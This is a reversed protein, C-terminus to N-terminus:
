LRLLLILTDVVSVAVMALGECGSGAWADAALVKCSASVIKLCSGTHATHRHNGLIVNTITM